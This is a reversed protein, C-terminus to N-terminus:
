PKHHYNNGIADVFVGEPIKLILNDESHAQRHKQPLVTAICHSPFWLVAHLCVPVVMNFYMFLLIVNLFM